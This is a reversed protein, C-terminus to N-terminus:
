RASHRDPPEATMRTEGARSTKRQWLWIGVAQAGFVAEVILGLLLSFPSTTRSLAGYFVAHALVLAFLAYNLRQLRKWPRARLKRLAVDSSLTLLGVVIVTAALGTWNGLGFSNTLPSGDPALFYSMFDSLAGHVQFGYVVHVVSFIATWLGVDRRLYSSVPNRRRLAMNIPGILLTVALLGTAVYGTAVTFQRVFVRDEAAAMGEAPDMSGGQGGGHDMSPAPSSEHDGTGVQGGHGPSGRQGGHDPVAPTAQEPMSGGTDEAGHGTSRNFTPLTMFAVLALV